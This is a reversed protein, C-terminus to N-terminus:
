NQCKQFRRSDMTLNCDDCIEKLTLVNTGICIGSKNRDPHIKQCCKSDDTLITTELESSVLEDLMLGVDCEVGPPGGYRRRAPGCYLRGDSELPSISRIFEGVDSELFGTPPKGLSPSWNWGGDPICSGGLTQSDRWDTM